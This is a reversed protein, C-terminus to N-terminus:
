KKLEEMQKRIVEEDPLREYQGWRDKEGIALQELEHALGSGLGLHYPALIIRGTKLFMWRM